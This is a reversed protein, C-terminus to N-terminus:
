PVCAALGLSGAAEEAAEEAALVALYLEADIDLQSAESERSVFVYVDGVETIIIQEYTPSDITAIATQFAAYFGDWAEAAEDLRTVLDAAGPASEETFDFARMEVAASGYAPGRDFRSVLNRDAGVAELEAALTDCISLAEAAIEEDTLGSSATTTPAATTSDGEDDGCAAVILSLAPVLAILAFWRRAM